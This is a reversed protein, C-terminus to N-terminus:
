ADEEDNEGGAGAPYPAPVIGEERLISNIKEQIKAPRHVENIVLDGMYTQLVITGFGLLTAELGAIQYNMTQIHHLGLDSVTRHFLGKQTIQIFRQDTVIFLSFYWNIFGPFMILAGIGFGIALGGFFWGFGLEPRLAAPLIGILPGLMGLILGKRMVIPHRRFVFLVEEDDFQGEFNKDSKKSM